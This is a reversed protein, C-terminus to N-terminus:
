IISPLVLRYSFLFNDLKLYIEIDDSENNTNLSTILLVYVMFSLFPSLVRMVAVSREAHLKILEFTLFEKHERNEGYFFFYM